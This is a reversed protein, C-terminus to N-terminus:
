KKENQLEKIIDTLQKNETQLSNVKLQLEQNKRKERNIIENLTLIVDGNSDSELTKKLVEYEALAEKATRLEIELKGKEILLKENQQTLEINKIELTTDGSKQLRCKELDRNLESIKKQQKDIKSKLLLVVENDNGTPQTSTSNPKSDPNDPKDDPSTTIIEEKKIKIFDIKGAGGASAFVGVNGSTFKKDTFSFIFVSNIYFDFVGNECRVMLENYSKNKIAKDKNWGNDGAYSLIEWQGNLFKRVRYQSKGNMECVIAGSGDSRANIMLGISNEQKKSGEPKLMMDAEYKTLNLEPNHLSTSFFDKNRNKVIYNGNETIYFDTASSRQEWKGTISLFEDESVIEDFKGTIKQAFANLQCVIVTLVLILRMKAPNYIM